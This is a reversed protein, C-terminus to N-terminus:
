SRRTAAATRGAMGFYLALGAASAASFAFKAASPLGSPSYFGEVLGAALLLLAACGLTSLSRRAQEALAARRTRRGPLLVAKGVGFGAGGALCIATLEIVGHPAVFALLVPLVGSNAYIGFVAGLFVGNLVLVCATGLGGLVGAAFTLFAVQLNNTAVGSALVAMSNPSVDVYAAEADGRPTNEVRAFMEAPVVSRGFGPDARVAAYTAAGSGFLLLAALGAGLAQARAARPLVVGVWRAVSPGAGRQARYLLNHGTSTWKELGYLLSPPAGYARARALDAAMGRYLRGFSRVDGESLRALGRKRARVVLRGYASWATSRGRALAAAQRGWADSAGGRRAAEERHLRELGDVLRGRGFEQGAATEPLAAAVKAALKARIPPALGDRRAMYRCLLAFQEEGLQPRGQGPPPLAEEWPAKGWGDDRVVITDAAMDGLRQTRGSGMMVAGGLAGTIGPQLDVPRILNRIVAGRPTLPHGAAHLVRLGLLRKGPTRGDWLAEFGMFYGWALVFVAVIMASLGLGEALGEGGAFAAVSLLVASMAGALLAADALFAAFRSGLDALDYDLRVHEPAELRVRRRARDVASGGATASDRM